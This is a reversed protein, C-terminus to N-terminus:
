NPRGRWHMTMAYPGIMFQLGNTCLRWIGALIEPHHTRRHFRIRM